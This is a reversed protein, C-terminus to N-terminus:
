CSDKDLLQTTSDASAMSITDEDSSGEISQYSSVQTLENDSDDPVSPSRTISPIGDVTSSTPTTNDCDVRSPNDSVGGNKNSRQLKLRMWLKMLYETHVHYALVFIVLTFTISVSTFTIITQYEGTELTFLIAASYLATNLYCIMEIVDVIWNEYIKGFHGKLFLLGCTVIVIALLNLGPSSFVFVLYLVARALLLLGTWYRHNFKYPAHYSDRICM